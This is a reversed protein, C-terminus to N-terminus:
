GLPVPRLHIPALSSPSGPVTGAAGSRGTKAEDQLFLPQDGATSRTERRLAQVKNKAPEDLKETWKKGAEEPLLIPNTGRWAKELNELELLSKDEDFDAPKTERPIQTKLIKGLQFLAERRGREQPRRDVKERQAPKSADWIRYASALEFPSLEGVESIQLSKPTDTSPVPYTATLKRVMVMREAPPVALLLERQNEPLTDLWAHYRRLVWLHRARSPSDLSAIRRDLDRIERQKDPPLELEFKRLSQLIRARHDAPMSRLRSWNADLDSIAAVSIVALASVGVIMWRRRSESKHDLSM